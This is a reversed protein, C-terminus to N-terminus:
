AQRAAKRMRGHGAMQGATTRDTMHDSEGCNFRAGKMGEARAKAKGTSSTWPSSRMKRSRMRRRRMKENNEQPLVRLVMNTTSVSPGQKMMSVPVKDDLCNIIATRM